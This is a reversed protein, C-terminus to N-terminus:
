RAWTSVCHDIVISAPDTEDSVTYDWAITTTGTGNGVVFYADNDPEQRPLALLAGNVQVDVPAVFFGWFGSVKVSDPATADLAVTVQYNATGSASCQDAVTWTGVFKQRVDVCVGSDDREFGTDCPDVGGGGCATAFSASFACACALMSNSFKM